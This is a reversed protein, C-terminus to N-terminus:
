VRVDQDRVRRRARHPQHTLVLCYFCLWAHLEGGSASGVSKSRRHKPMTSRKSGSSGNGSSKGKTSSSSASASGAQASKRRKTAKTTSAPPPPPLPPAAVRGYSSAAAAQAQAQQDYPVFPSTPSGYQRLPAAQPRMYQQQRQQGAVAHAWSASAAAAAPRPRALPLALAGREGGEEEEARPSLMTATDQASLMSADAVRLGLLGLLASATASREGEFSEGRVRSRHVPRVSLSAARRRPHAPHMAAGSADEATTAVGASAAAAAAGAPPGCRKIVTEAAVAAGHAAYKSSLLAAFTPSPQPHPGANIGGYPMSKSRARHGRYEEPKPVRIRGHRAKPKMMSVTVRTATGTGTGAGAGAGAGTTLAPRAASSASASATATASTASASASDTGPLANLDPHPTLQFGAEAFADVRRTCPLSPM